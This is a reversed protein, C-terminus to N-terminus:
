AGRPQLVQIRDLYKPTTDLQGNILFVAGPNARPTSPRYNASYPSTYNPVIENIPAFDGTWQSNSFVACVSEGLIRYAGAERDTVSTPVSGGTTAAYYYGGKFPPNNSGEYLSTIADRDGNPRNVGDNTSDIIGGAWGLSNGGIGNTGHFRVLVPAAPNYGAIGAFPVFYCRYRYTDGSSTPGIPYGNPTAAQLRLGLGNVVSSSQSAGFPQLTLQGKAYWTVGDFDYPGPETLDLDPLTRLDLDYIPNLPVVGSPAAEEVHVTPNAPWGGTRRLAFTDGVRTSGLFPYRFAGDRYALEEPRGDGYSVSVFPVSVPM